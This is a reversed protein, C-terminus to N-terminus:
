QSRRPLHRRPTSPSSLLSGIFGYLHSGTILSRFYHFYVSINYGYKKQEKQPPTLRSFLSVIFFYHVFIFYTIFISILYRFIIFTNFYSLFLSAFYHFFKYMVCINKEQPTFFFIGKFYKRLFKCDCFFVFLAKRRTKMRINM